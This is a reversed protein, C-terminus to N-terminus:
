KTMTRVMEEENMIKINKKENWYNIFFQLYFIFHSQNMSRASYKIKQIYSNFQECVKEKGSLTKNNKSIFYSLNKCAQRKDQKASITDNENYAFFQRSKKKHVPHVIDSCTPVDLSTMNCNKFFIGLKTADCALVSPNYQCVGCVKRFDIKFNSLWSFIFDTFTQRSMFKMSSCYSEEMIECFSTLSMQSKTVCSIFHWGIEDGAATESSLIHLSDQAGTYEIKCAPNNKL